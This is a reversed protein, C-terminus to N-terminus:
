RMVSTSLQQGPLIDVAAAELTAAELGTTRKSSELWIQRSQLCRCVMLTLLQKRERGSFDAKRRCQSERLKGV